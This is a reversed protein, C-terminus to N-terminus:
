SSPAIRRVRERDLFGCLLDAQAQVKTTWAGGRLVGIQINRLAPVDVSLASVPLVAIMAPMAVEQHQSGGPSGRSGRMFRAGPAMRLIKSLDTEMADEALIMVPAPNAAVQRMIGAPTVGDPLCPARVLPEIITKLFASKGSKPGGTLLLHHSPRQGDAAQLLWDLVTKADDQTEWPLNALMEHAQQREMEPVGHTLARELESDGDGGGRLGKARAKARQLDIQRDLFRNMHRAERLAANLAQSCSFGLAAAAIEAAHAAPHGVARIASRLIALDLRSSLRLTHM